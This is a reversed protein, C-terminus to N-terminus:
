TVPTFHSIRAFVPQMRERFTSPDQAHLHDIIALIARLQLRFASDLMSALLVTLFSARVRSLAHDYSPITGRFPIHEPAPTTLENPPVAHPSSPNFERLPSPVCDHVKTSMPHLPVRAVYPAPSSKLPELVIHMPNHFRSIIHAAVGGPHRTMPLPSGDISVLRGYENIKALSRRLLVTTRPCIRFDLPHKGTTGCVFCRRSRPRPVPDRTRPEVYPFIPHDPHEASMSHNTTMRSILHIRIPASSMTPTSTSPTYCPLPVLLFITFASPFSSHNSLVFSGSFTRYFFRGERHAGSHFFLNTRNYVLSLGLDHYCGAPSTSTITVAIPFLFTSLKPRRENVRYETQEHSTSTPLFSDQSVPAQEGPFACLRIPLIRQGGVADVIPSWAMDFDIGPARRPLAADSGASTKLNFYLLEDGQGHGIDRRLRSLGMHRSIVSPSAGPPFPGISLIKFCAVVANPQCTHDPRFGFAVLADLRVEVAGETLSPPAQIQEVAPLRDM